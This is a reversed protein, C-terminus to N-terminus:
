NVMRGCNAKDQNFEKNGSGKTFHEKLGTCKALAMDWITSLSAKISAEVMGSIFEKDMEKITLTSDKMNKKVMLGNGMGMVFEMKLNDEISLEMTGTTFVMEKQNEMLTSDKMSIEMPSFKFEEGMNIAMKLKVKMIQHKPTYKGKAKQSISNGSDMMIIMEQNGNEMDMSWVTLLYEMFFIGMEGCLYEM